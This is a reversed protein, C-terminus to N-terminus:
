VHFARRQRQRRQQKGAGVRGGRVQQLVGPQEAPPFVAACLRAEEQVLRVLLRLAADWRCRLALCCLVHCWCRRGRGLKWCGSSSGDGWVVQAGLVRSLCLQRTGVKMIESFARWARLAHVAGPM